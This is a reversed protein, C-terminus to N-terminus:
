HCAWHNTLPGEVTPTNIAFPLDHNRDGGTARRSMGLVLINLKTFCNVWEETWNRKHRKTKSCYNTM